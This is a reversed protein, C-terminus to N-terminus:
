FWVRQIKPKDPAQQKGLCWLRIEKLKRKSYRWTWPQFILNSFSKGWRMVHALVDVYGPIQQYIM